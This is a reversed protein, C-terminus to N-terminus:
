FPGFRLAQSRFPLITSITMLLCLVFFETPPKRDKEQHKNYLGVKIDGYHAIIVYCFIISIVILVVIGYLNLVNEVLVVSVLCQGAFREEM